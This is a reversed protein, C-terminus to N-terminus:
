FKWSMTMCSYTMHTWDLLWLSYWLSETCQRINEKGLPCWHITYSQNPFKWKFKSIWPCFCCWSLLILLWCWKNMSQSLLGRCLPSLFNLLRRLTKRNHSSHPSISLNNKIDSLRLCCKTYNKSGLLKEWLCGM